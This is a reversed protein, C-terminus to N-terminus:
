IKQELKSVHIILVARIWPFKEKMQDFYKGNEAFEGNGHIHYGRGLGASGEKKHSGFTLILQSGQKEIDNQVSHMGAAPILMTNDDIVEIYHSWTNVVSPNQNGTIITVPTEDPLIELFNKTLKTDTELM